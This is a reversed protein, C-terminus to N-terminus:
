AFKTVSAYVTYTASATKVITFSYVDNASANGATPATGTAWKPTVSTGDVQFASPYYATTGNTQIWVVSLSQGTALLTNMTTGSNGRFNLTANGTANTTYHWVSATLVDYNITGTAASAVLNIKETSAIFNASNIAPATLTKNTLTQTGDTTVATSPLSSYGLSTWATTGDGIKYKSTDTEICFEGAAPTPNASTWNAATDNRLQIQQAM